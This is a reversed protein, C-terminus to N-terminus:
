ESSIDGIYWRALLKIQGVEKVVTEATIAAAKFNTYDRSKYWGGFTYGAKEPEPLEGYTMGYSVYKEYREGNFAILVVRVQREVWHAYLTKESNENFISNVTVKKGESADTYWGDFVYSGRTPTPLQNLYKSGFYVKVTTTIQTEGDTDQSGGATTQTGTDATQTDVGTDQRKKNTDLTGGNPDLSIEVQEGRWRAYLTHAMPKIVKTESTVKSGGSRFTYWGQFVYNERTAEPLEGYTGGYSVVMDAAGSEGGNADFSVVVSGSNGTFTSALAQKMSLSAFISIMIIIAFLAKRLTRM